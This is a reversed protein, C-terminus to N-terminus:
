GAPLPTSAGYTMFDTPYVTCWQSVFTPGFTVHRDNCLSTGSSHFYVTKKRDDALFTVQNISNLYQLYINLLSNSPKKFFILCLKEEAKLHKCTLIFSKSTKAEFFTIQLYIFYFVFGM